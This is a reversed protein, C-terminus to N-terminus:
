FYFELSMRIGSKDISPHDLYNLRWIYDLRMCKLLNVVGVGAEMYPVDEMKYTRSPFVFLENNPNISPNNKESLSGYLGRFSFIERLKLSKILPINNLLVGNLNYNLDWTLYQDNIFELANMMPFSEYQIIYSLNANPIILLPFPVKNWVKGAKLIVNANGYASFWIRQQFGFETRNYDYSSNLLGKQAVSQSYTFVPSDRTFSRRDAMTQYYKQGPAYRLRLQIDGLSYSDINQGSISNTFGVFPSAYETRHRLDLGYSFQSYFEKNYSLEMKRIYTMITDPRRKLSFLLNDGNSYTYFQGLRNIDYSYTAKISHIPFDNAQANKKKFSYELQALGKPKMDKFGYAMYGNAFWHNNFQATTLGGLRLRLGEMNNFSVMSSVPGIFIKKQKYDTPFYGTLLAGTTKEAAYYFPDKHLKEMMEDLNNKKLPLSDPSNEAWYSAPKDIIDDAVIIKEKQKFINEDEPKLFSHKTYSNTRKAYLGETNNIIAFEVVIDDHILMRTGDSARKFEQHIALNQIFNLNIDKPINMKVKRVFNSSDLSIYLNGTFGTSESSFPVFGLDMCKQGDIIVTDLLYYKYFSPGSTSLPSVFHKMFLSIDNDYIDVDKFVENLFEAVGEESLIEDIGSSKKAKIVKKEIQPSKQYYYNEMMEKSSITLIPKGSLESSDVYNVLFNYKKFLKNKEKQFGDIAIDIREYHEYQYYEKNLPSYKMKSDIVKQVFEVAPNAKKKYREKKPKVIMERLNHHTTTLQIKIKNLNQGRLLINKENYGVSRVTLIQDANPISLSFEGTNDTMVGTGTGKVSISIFPLAEKSISDIVIGRVKSQANMQFIICNLLFLIPIIFLLKKYNM